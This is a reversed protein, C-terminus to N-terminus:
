HNISIKQTIVNQGDTARVVYLGYGLQKASICRGSMDYVGVLHYGQPLILSGNIVSIMKNGANNAQSNIGSTGSVAAQTANYLGRKLVNAEYNSVFSVVRMNAVNWKPDVNITYNKEFDYNSIDLNDGWASSSLVARLVGNQTFNARGTQQTSQINDEVLWTTLRLDNQLPMENTGAHGSVKVNIQKGDASLQPAATLTIFSYESKALGILNTVVTDNAIFYAPGPDELGSIALRDVCIAPVFTKSEGYLAEYDKDAAIRFQDQHSKYDLHHKVRIVDKRQGIAKTYVSDAIACEKYGESTFEEFLVTREVPESGEKMAYGRLSAANDNMDPDTSGNVKTVTFTGVFNGEVPVSVNDLVIKQPVNNPINYGNLTVEKSQIGKASVSLSLSTIPATGNNQIYAVYSKPKNQEIYYGNDEPALRILSIDNNPVNQGSLVARICINKGIAATNSFWNGDYGYWNKKTLSYPSEDFLLCDYLEDANLYLIYGIYLNMGKKITLSKPFKKKNWGESYSTSSGQVLTSERPNKLDTCIFYEVLHGRKPKIAFEISDIKNGVYKDLLEAPFYVAAHYTHEGTIQAILGRSPEITCYGIHMNESGSTPAAMERDSPSLPALRFLNDSETQAFLDGGIMSLSTLSLLFIFKRISNM